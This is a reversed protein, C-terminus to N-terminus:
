KTLNNTYFSLKFEQNFHAIKTTPDYTWVKFTIIKGDWEPFPQFIAKWGSKVLDPDNFYEAIGGLRPIDIPTNVLFNEDNEVTIIIRKAKSQDPNIAWGMIEVTENTNVEMLQDSHVIDWGYQNIQEINGFIAFPCHFYTIGKISNKEQSMIDLQNDMGLSKFPIVYLKQKNFYHAYRGAGDNSSYSKDCSPYFGDELYMRFIYATSLNTYVASLENSNLNEQWNRNNSALIDQFNSLDIKLHKFQLNILLTMIVVFNILLTIPSNLISNIKIQNIKQSKKFLLLSSCILATLLLILGLLGSKFSTQRPATNTGLQYYSSFTIIFNLIALTIISLFCANKSIKNLKVQAQYFLIILLLLLGLKYVIAYTFSYFNLHTEWAPKNLFFIEKFFSLVSNIFSAKLKGAIPSELSNGEIHAVRNSLLLFLIYLSCSFPIINAISLKWRNFKDVRSFPLHNPKTLFINFLLLLFLCSSFFLQYIAGMEWSSSTIIGFIILQFLNGTTIKQSNSQNIFFNLNFIIGALTSIYAVSVVVLYFMSSPQQSYLLYILLILTILLPCLFTLYINKPKNKIETEDLSEEKDQLFLSNKKIANRTFIFVSSILFLWIIFIMGGTFPKGLWPVFNYYIYLIIESFFRPSWAFIRESLAHFGYVQYSKAIHYDDGNWSAAILLLFSPCLILITTVLLFLINFKSFKNLIKGTM